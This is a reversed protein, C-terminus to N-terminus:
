EAGQHVGANPKHSLTGLTYHPFGVLLTECELWM